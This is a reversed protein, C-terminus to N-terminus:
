AGPLTVTVETGASEDTTMTIDGAHARAILRASYTGLGTGRTKGSTAYKEFFRERMDVPVAGQNKVRVRVGEAGRALEVAVAGGEPSAELANLVLNALMSHCLLEEALVTFQTDPGAEVGDALLRVALRRMDLADEQGALIKRLMTLLDFEEPALRYSGREMKFLTTSLNVQALLTYGADEVRRLMERQHEDLNDALLLLQPVSIVSTLPSKLDHHMIREVDEKMRAAERLALHNKVRAKVIAPNFPKTIYDIAGALLGRAEDEADTQATVFIVPIDETSENAKLRSLVEYGDMEPMMVDLLILDPPEPGLALALAQEGSTALALEHDERLAAALLKLNAPADDVALIKTKRAATM